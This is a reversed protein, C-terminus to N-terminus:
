NILNSKSQCKGLPTKRKKKKKKKASGGEGRDRERESWRKKTERCGIM